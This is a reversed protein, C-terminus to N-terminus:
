NATSNEILTNEPTRMVREQKVGTFHETSINYKELRNRITKSNNGKATYGLKLSLEYVSTSNAVLEELEEVTFNDILAKSM